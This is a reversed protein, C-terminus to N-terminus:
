NGLAELREREKKEIERQNDGLRFNGFNYTFGVRIFQTEPRRRYFNNQNFYQSTYTPVLKRFIDEAAVSLVARNDWLSKRLGLTLNLQEDHLYSGFLFGSNYTLTAEGTFTGDATLTLYNAWYAYIGNITNEFEQNNSEVATLTVDEHFLSVYAYVYWPNLLPKSFTIDLGYSNSGLVNQKLERLTLNTNDQFVLEEIIRGNDRYYVDFFLESNFSYNLNFNNNFSAQLGANGETFDNENYFNRFPNLDNYKPRDLGRNYDFAFSHKENPSHLLYFSPFLEFFEQTNVSNLTFSTGKANTYEGRLGAKISWKDWGQVVSAYGAWVTEDYNFNDSLGANVSEDTGQFNLYDIRNESNIQSFKAGTEISGAGVPVAM